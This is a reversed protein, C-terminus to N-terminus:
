LLVKALTHVAAGPAYPICKQNQPISMCSLGAEELFDNKQSRKNHATKANTKM